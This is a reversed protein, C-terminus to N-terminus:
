MLEFANEIYNMELRSVDAGAPAYIEMVDFRPQLKTPRLQLWSQAAAVIKEQKSRTVFERAQAFRANKRLKVEVFRIYRRDAAIIDIEGFRTRYNMALITCGKRRLYEATQAEGFSGLLKTNMM